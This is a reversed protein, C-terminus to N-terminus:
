YTVVLTRNDFMAAVPAQSKLAKYVEESVEVVDARGIAMGQDNLREDGDIGLTLEQWGEGTKYELRIPNKSLNQLKKM